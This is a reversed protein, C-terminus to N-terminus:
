SLEWGEWRSVRVPDKKEESTPPCPVRPRLLLCFAGALGRLSIAGFNPVSCPRLLALTQQLLLPEKDRFFRPIRIVPEYSELCFPTRFPWEYRGVGALIGNLIQKM